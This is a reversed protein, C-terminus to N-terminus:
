LGINTKKQRQPKNIVHQCDEWGEVCCRPLHMNVTNGKGDIAKFTQPTYEDTM